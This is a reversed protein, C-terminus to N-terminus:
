DFTLRLYPRPLRRTGEAHFRLHTARCNKSKLRGSAGKRKRRWGLLGLGGLGTAFLPLAAPLPTPTLTGSFQAGFSCGVQGNIINGSCNTASIGTFTGGAFGVLSAATQSPTTVIPDIALDDFPAATGNTVNVIYATPFPFPFSNFGGQSNITTYDPPSNTFVLDAATAVGAVNDITLTGSLGTVGTVNFVLVAAHGPSATLLAVVLTMLLKKMRSQPYM